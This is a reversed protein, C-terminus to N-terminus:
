LSIFAKLHVHREGLEEHISFFPFPLLWLTLHESDVWLLATPSLLSLVSTGARSSSERVPLHPDVSFRNEFLPTM